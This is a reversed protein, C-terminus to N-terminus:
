GRAQESLFRSCGIGDAHVGALRLCRWLSAQNSTIVPRQLDQELWAVAEHCRLGSGGIIVGDADAPMARRVERYVEAPRVDWQGGADWIRWPEVGEWRPGGSLRLTAATEIGCEALYSRAAQAIEPKFWPPLVLMPRRMGAQRAAVVLADSASVVPAGARESAQRMFAQDFAAGGFFGSTVFCVCLADLRMRGLQDLGRAIDPSEAVTRAADGYEGSGPLRPSAFRAANLSVGAPAMAQFEFEAVPDTDIVLLGLRARSGWRPHDGPGAGGHTTLNM